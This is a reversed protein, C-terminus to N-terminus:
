RAGRSVPCVAFRDSLDLVGRPTACVSAGRGLHLCRHDAVSAITDECPNTETPTPVRSPPSVILYYFGFSKNNRNRRIHLVTAALQDEPARSRQTLHTM